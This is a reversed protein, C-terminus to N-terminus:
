SLLRIGILDSFLLNRFTQLLTEFFSTLNITQRTPKASLKPFFSSILLSSVNLKPTYSSTVLYYTSVWYKSWSAIGSSM